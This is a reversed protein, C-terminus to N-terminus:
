ATFNVQKIKETFYGYGTQISFEILHIKSVIM